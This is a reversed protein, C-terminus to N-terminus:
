FGIKKRVLEVATGAFTSVAVVILALTFLVRGKTLYPAIQAVSRWADQLARRNRPADPGHAMDEGLLATWLKEALADAIRDPIERVKVDHEDQWRRQEEEHSKLAERISVAISVHMEHLRKEIDRIDREMVEVRYSLTSMMDTVQTSRRAGPTGEESILSM